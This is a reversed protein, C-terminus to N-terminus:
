IAELPALSLHPSFLSPWSDYHPEAGRGGGALATAPVPGNLWEGNQMIKKIRKKM